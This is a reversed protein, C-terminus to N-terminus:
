IDSVNLRLFQTNHTKYGLENMFKKVMDTSDYSIAIFEDFVSNVLIEKREYDYLWSDEEV